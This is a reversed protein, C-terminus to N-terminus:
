AEINHLKKLRDLAARVGLRKSFPDKVYCDARVYITEEGRKLELETAGGRESVIEYGYGGRKINERIAKDAVLPEAKDKWRKRRFHTIKVEFNQSKLNKISQTNPPTKTNM